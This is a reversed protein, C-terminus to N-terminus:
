DSKVYVSRWQRVSTSWTDVGAVRDTHVDTPATSHCIHIVPAVLDIMLEEIQHYVAARGDQDAITMAKNHLEVIQPDSLGGPNWAGDPLYIQATLQSPDAFPPSTYAYADATKNLV